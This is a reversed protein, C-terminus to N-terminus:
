GCSVNYLDINGDVEVIFGYKADPLLTYNEIDYKVLWQEISKKTTLFKNVM